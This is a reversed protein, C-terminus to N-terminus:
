TNPRAPSAPGSLLAGLVLDALRDFFFRDEGDGPEDVGLSPWYGRKGLAYGHTAALLLLVAFDLDPRTFPVEGREGRVREEIADAVKRAGRMRRAFFDKKAVRGTLFSWALLRAVAPRDAWRFWAQMWERPGADPRGLIQALLADRHIQAHEELAADILADVTGFYHTVLAHSVGAEAAVDKLGVADPGREGLLRATADLILRRAEEPTRRRRAPPSAARRPVRHGYTSKADKVIFVRRSNDRRVISPAM